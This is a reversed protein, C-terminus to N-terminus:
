RPDGRVGDVSTSFNLDEGEVEKKAGYYHNNIWYDTDDKSTLIPKLEKSRWEDSSLHDPAFVVFGANAIVRCLRPNAWGMGGSGHVYGVVGRISQGVLEDLFTPKSRMIEYTVRMRGQLKVLAKKKADDSFSKELEQIREGSVGTSWRRGACYQLWRIKRFHWMRGSWINKRLGTDSNMNPELKFHTVAAPPLYLIWNGMMGVTEPTKQLLPHSNTILIQVPPLVNEASCQCGM